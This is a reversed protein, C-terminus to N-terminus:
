TGSRLIKGTLLDRIESPKSAGGLPGPVIHLDVGRFYCRVKLDSRAPPLGSPNASTSVIPGGFATCLAAALPHQTVRVALTTRGGTIWQPALRGAPVIWTTPIVTPTNLRAFDEASIHGLYSQLQTAAAAILIMGKAEPRVKLTMIDAVAQENQPDCGLGWVAETPYAIVGGSKMVAAALAIRPSLLWNM